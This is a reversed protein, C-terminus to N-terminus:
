TMVFQGRFHRGLTRRISGIHRQLRRAPAITSYISHLPDRLLAKCSWTLSDRSSLYSPRLTYVNM